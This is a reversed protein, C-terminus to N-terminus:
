LELKFEENFNGNVNNYVDITSILIFKNIKMTKLITQINNIIESDEDPNKNAYWKVAPIGCFYM